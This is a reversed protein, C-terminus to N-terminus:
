VNTLKREAQQQKIRARWLRSMEKGRESNAYRRNSARGAATLKYRLASTRHCIKCRSQRGSSRSADFNFDAPLKQEHCTSCRLLTEMRSSTPYDVRYSPASPTLFHRTYSSM